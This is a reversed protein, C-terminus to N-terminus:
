VAALVYRGVAVFGAARREEGADHLGAALADCFDAKDQQSSEDRIAATLMEIGQAADGGKLLWAGRTARIAPPTPAAELAFRSYEDIMPGLDNRNARLATWAVSGQLWARRWVGDPESIPAVKDLDFGSTLYWDIASSDGRARAICDVAQAIFFAELKAGPATALALAAAEEFRRQRSLAVVQWVRRGEAELPTESRLLRLLLRGDSSVNEDDGFRRPILNFLATAAQSIGIGAFSATALLAQLSQATSFEICLWFALAAVIANAAPGAAIMVGERWRSRRERLDFSHMRGGAYAYRRVEVRASGLKFALISPGRGMTVQWVTRGVAVAALAHGAEHVIIRLPLTVLSAILITLLGLGQSSDSSFVWGVLPIWMLQSIILNATVRKEYRTPQYASCADCVTERLGFFGGEERRFFLRDDSRFGCRNCRLTM